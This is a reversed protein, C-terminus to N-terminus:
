MVEEEKSIHQPIALSSVIDCYYMAEEKAISCYYVAEEKCDKCGEVQGEEGM